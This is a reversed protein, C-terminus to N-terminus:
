PMRMLRSFVFVASSNRSLQSADGESGNLLQNQTATLLHQLRALQQQALRKSYNLIMQRDTAGVAIPERGNVVYVTAPLPASEASPHHSLHALRDQDIGSSSAFSILVSDPRKPLKPASFIL